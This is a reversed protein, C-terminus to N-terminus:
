DGPTLPRRSTHRIHLIDVKVERVRYFIRYPYRVASAVRVDSRQSVRPGSEPAHSIRDIVDYLRQGIVAAITPSAHASYYAAIAALDNLAQRSYFL